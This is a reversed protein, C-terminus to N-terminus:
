GKSIRTTISPSPCPQGASTISAPRIHPTTTAWTTAMTVLQIDSVTRDWRTSGLWDWCQTMSDGEEEEELYTELTRYNYDPHYHHHHHCSVRWITMHASCKDNEAAFMSVISLEHLSRFISKEERWVSWLSQVCVIGCLQLYFLFLNSGDM